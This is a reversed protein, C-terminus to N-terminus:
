RSCRGGLLAQEAESIPEGLSVRRMIDVCRLDDRSPRILPASDDHATTPATTPATTTTTATPREKPTVSLTPAAPKVVATRRIIPPAPPEAVIPRPAPDAIASTAPAPPSPETAQTVPPLPPPAITRATTRATTPATAPATAPATEAKAPADPTAMRWAVAAGAVAVVVVAGILLPARRGVRSGASPLERATQARPAAALAQVTVAQKLESVAPPAPAPTADLAIGLSAAFAQVTAQRGSPLVSMARDIAKLFPAGYPLSAQAALAAYTDSVMRTVANPPARRTIAYHMVSALAYIDTWPGQQMDPSSGYQEIPAYGPKLIVTLAQTRDGIVRRAAGFDLLLPTGQLDILINDPSIDRHYCRDAHMMALGQLLPRLLAKLWAEDPAHATGDLVQKLTAGEVFPMVMYATGNAEWFRHVKVLAPHDFRALLRAENVFSKLGAAFTEADASSRVSVTLSDTRWALSTPMYEKLAVRRNLLHDQALYVIGFGGEGLPRLLEFEELRTGSPLASPSAGSAATPSRVTLAAPPRQRTRDIDEPPNM